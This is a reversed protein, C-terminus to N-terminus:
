HTNLTVSGGSRYWERRVQVVGERGTGSGGSRYREREGQLILYSLVKNLTPRSVIVSLM